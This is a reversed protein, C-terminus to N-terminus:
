YKNPEFPTQLNRITSSIKKTPKKQIKNMSLKVFASFQEIATSDIVNQKMQHGTNLGVAYATANIPQENNILCCLFHNGRQLMAPDSQLDVSPTRPLAECIKSAYIKADPDNSWNYVATLAMGICSVRDKQNPHHDIFSSNKLNETQRVSNALSDEYLQTHFDIPTNKVKINHGNITYKLTEGYNSQISALTNKFIVPQANVPVQGIM